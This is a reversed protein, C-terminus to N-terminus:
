GSADWEPSFWPDVYRRDKPLEELLHRDEEDLRTDLAAVNEKLEEFRSPGPIVAVDPQDLLWRLAVQAATCRHKRAIRRVTEDQVLRGKAIPSHAIVPIGRGRLYKLLKPQRLMLHYEFQVAAIDTGYCEISVRMLTTNFNCVGIRRARGDTRLAMLGELATRLDMRPAPWQSTLRGVVRRLFVLRTDRAPPPWHIMYLDVYDTRLKRLSADIARRISGPRPDDIWVKTTIHIEARPVASAALAAGIVEENAYMQATDIHRCGMALAAEVLAQCKAGTLKWTGLGLRPINLGNATIRDM